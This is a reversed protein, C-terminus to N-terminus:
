PPASKAQAIENYIKLYKEAMIGWSYTQAIHRAALGMSTLTEPANALQNLHAALQPVDDPNQLVYGGAGIIEAGGASSATIVPLGSAMAELLVLSMAEYRSPFTFVDVSRMLNPMDTVMGLFHVRGAIGLQKALAPYPSGDLRGAVALHWSPALAVARLVTELNKRPSRIDGAFLALPTNAPLNFKPRSPTGPAFEAIDVGNEIITLKDPTIGIQRLEQHIKASVAIVANAQRFAQKEWIINLTTFLRHYCDKASGLWHHPYYGSHRWGAHVFHATNIDAKHWTIFGNTQIVDFSHAHRALWRATKWAFLQYKLLSSPLHATRIEVWSLQPHSALEPALQTGLFTVRWGSALASKVIEYNVRGQGDNKRCVHTILCLKKM